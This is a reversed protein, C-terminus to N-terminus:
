AVIPFLIGWATFGERVGPSEREKAERKIKVLKGPKCTVFMATLGLRVSGRPWFREGVLFTM